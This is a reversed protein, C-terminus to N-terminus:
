SLGKNAHALNCSRCVFQLDYLTAGEYKRHHIDCKRGQREECIECFFPDKELAEIMLAEIYDRMNGLANDASNNTQPRAGLERRVVRQVQRTTVGVGLRGAIKRAPLGSKALKVINADRETM